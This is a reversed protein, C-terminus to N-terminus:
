KSGTPKGKVNYYAGNDPAAQSKVDYNSSSRINYSPAEENEHLETSPASDLNPHSNMLQETKATMKMKDQNDNMNKM